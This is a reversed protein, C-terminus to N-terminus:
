AQMGQYLRAYAGAVADRDYRMAAAAAIAEHDWEAALAARMAALAAEPERIDIRIFSEPPFYDEVNPCGYYFPLTL